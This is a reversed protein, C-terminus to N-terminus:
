EGANAAAGTCVHYRPTVTQTVYADSLDRYFGIERLRSKFAAVNARLSQRDDIATEGFGDGPPLRDIYLGYRERLFELLEEIRLPATAFGLSGEAPRLVALQLLVELLRSDLVFRRASKTNPQVLLGGPQNKLLLSDICRTIFQRRYIGDYGMLIEVYTDFESLKLDLIAKIEPAIDKDAEGEVVSELRKGFYIKRETALAPALLELLEGVTFFGRSPRQRKGFKVMHGFAFDDLKRVVFHSRVFPPIRRFHVDASREALRAMPTDPIGGADVLLGIRYPCNGHPNVAERPKMPCAAPACMPSESQQQVLAPLLKFLRLHYLALHFALLIKLYDVLVSRPILPRYMLLRLLDDALLDAQGVCLPPVHPEANDRDTTDTKVQDCLRLLAQTEVDVQATADPQETTLDVGAFFFSKLQDLATTGRGHRAHYLLEYLHQAAGYDKLHKTNRFRYTFGHLPRPAAVAQNPRGRNVLDLLDSEIWREFVQPHKDFGVFWDQKELFEDRIMEVTVDRRGRMVSVRGNHRIREFLGTLIWDMNQHKFDIYTILPLRFERDKREIPM